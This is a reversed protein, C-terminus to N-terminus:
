RAEGGKSKSKRTQPPSINQIACLMENYDKWVKPLERVVLKDTKDKMVQEIANCAKLGAVDTDLCLKIQEVDPHDQLFTSLTIPLEQENEKVSVEKEDKDSQQSVGGLSLLHCDKFDLNCILQITAYSLADIASEFVCVTKANPNRAPFCFSYQKESGEIEGMFISQSLTSRVFGYRPKRETDYGVFVTNHRKADEYLLGHKICYNIIHPDIGRSRLYAFVRRNNECRPPLAFPQKEKKQPPQSSVPQTPLDIKGDGIIAQVAQPLSLDKVKILYDLASYGGIRRSWWYWKGNSIKLSDHTKTCYVGASLPVLEDPEYRQLYSLLDVSRAQEIEKESYYPM